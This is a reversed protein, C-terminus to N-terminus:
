CGAVLAEVDAPLSGARRLEDEIEEVREFPLQATVAAVVCACRDEDGGARRCADTFSRTFAPGFGPPDAPAVLATLAVVAAVVAAVAAVVAGLRDRRLGDPASPTPAGM